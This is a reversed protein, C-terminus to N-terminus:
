GNAKQGVVGYLGTTPDFDMESGEKCSGYLDLMKYLNVGLLSNDKPSLFKVKHM